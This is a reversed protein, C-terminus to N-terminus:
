QFIELRGKEASMTPDSGQHSQSGFLMGRYSTSLNLFFKRYEKGASRSGAGIMRFWALCLSALAYAFASFRYGAKLYWLVTNRKLLFSKFSSHEYGEIEEHHIIGPVPIFVSAWGSKLARWSWDADEVFGGYSEDMLGFQRLAASRCLVCVGNLFDVKAERLPTRRRLAPFLRWPIWTAINHIVSPFCFRTNQITERNRYYVLPGLFAATPWRDAAALLENIFAPNVVETDANVILVFDHDTALAARIGANYGACFLRNQDINVVTIGPFRTAVLLSLSPSSGNNVFILDEQRDVISSFSQLCSDLTTYPRHASVVVATRKSLLMMHPM